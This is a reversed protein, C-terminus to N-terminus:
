NFHVSRVCEIEESYFGTAAFGHFSKSFVFCSRACHIWFFKRVGFGVTSPASSQRYRFIYRGVTRRNSQSHVLMPWHCGKPQEEYILQKNNDNFLICRSLIVRRQRNHHVNVFSAEESAANM